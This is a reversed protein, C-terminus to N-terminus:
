AVLNEYQKNFETIFNKSDQELSAKVHIQIFDFKMFIILQLEYTRYFIGAAFIVIGSIGLIKTPIFFINNYQMMWFTFIALIFLFFNFHLKRRKVFKINKIFKYLLPIKNDYNHIHIESSSITGFDNSFVFYNEELNEM